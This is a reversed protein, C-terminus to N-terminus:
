EKSGILKGKSNNPLHKLMYAYLERAKMWDILWKEPDDSLIGSTELEEMLTNQQADDLHKYLTYFWGDMRDLSVMYSTDHRHVTYGSELVKRYNRPLGERRENRNVIEARKKRPKDANLNDIKKKAGMGAARCDECRVANTRAAFVRGCDTCLKLKQMNIKLALRDYLWLDNKSEIEFAIVMEGNYLFPYTKLPNYNGQIDIIDSLDISKGDDELLPPFPYYPPALRIRHSNFSQLMKEIDGGGNIYREKEREYLAISISGIPEIKVNHEKGAILVKETNKGHEEEVCWDGSEDRYIFVYGKKLALAIM